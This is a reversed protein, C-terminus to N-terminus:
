VKGGMKTKLRKIGYWIVNGVEVTLEVELIIIWFLVIASLVDDNTIASIAVGVALYILVILIILLTNM